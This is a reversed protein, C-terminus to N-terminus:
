WFQWWPKAPKCADTKIAHNAQIEAFYKKRLAMGEAMQEDSCGLEVILCHPLALQRVDTGQAILQIITYSENGYLCVAQRKEESLKSVMRAVIARGRNYAPYGMLPVLIEHKGNRRIRIADPQYHLGTSEFYLRGFAVASITDVQDILHHSFGQERM